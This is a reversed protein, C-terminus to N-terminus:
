PLVIKIRICHTDFLIVWLCYTFYHSRNNIQYNKKICGTFLKITFICHKVQKTNARPPRKLSIDANIGKGHHHQKAARSNERYNMTYNFCSSLSIRFEKPAHMLIRERAQWMFLNNQEHRFLTTTTLRPHAEMNGEDFFSELVSTLEPFQEVKLERGRNEFSLCYMNKKRKTIIRNTLLRQQENTMDNRVQLSTKKLEDFQKMRYRHEDKNRSIATANKIGLVIPTCVRDM